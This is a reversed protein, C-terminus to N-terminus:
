QGHATLWNMVTNHFRDPDQIQPAHGLDPYEVLDVHPIRAAAQKGLVPYNGLTPRVEPPAMDKGIATNDLDGIILLTAPQIHPFEYVVPETFIMDDLLASDWAVAEKGPGRYMGALMQVWKEYSPDWKGGYYTEREYNRLREATTKLDREFWQDITPWPVGKAQWDELGVPDVLVLARTADPYMLAYRAALMGGTSHGLIVAHEVHLEELLAHTNHALQEFSFQYRAPKSSKCFGIQDLAIVRHGANVLAKITAEWTGACFNKGHLLVITAGTQSTPVVDIYTMSLSQGQSMFVYRHLPFAYEFGELEAGYVPEAEASYATLAPTLWTAVVSLLITTLCRLFKM